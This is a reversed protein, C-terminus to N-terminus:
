PHLLLEGARGVDVQVRLAADPVDKTRILFLGGNPQARFRIEARIRTDGPGLM